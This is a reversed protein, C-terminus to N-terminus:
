KKEASLVEIDKISYKEMCAFMEDFQATGLPGAEIVTEEDEADLLKLDINNNGLIGWETKRHYGLRYSALAFTNELKGKKFYRFTGDDDLEFHINESFVAMYILAVAAALGLIVCILTPLFFQTIVFAAFGGCPAIILGRILSFMTRKYVQM